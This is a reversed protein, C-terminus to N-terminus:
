KGNSRPGGSQSRRHLQPRAANVKLIRGKVDAGDMAAIAREADADDKMEIFAVGTPQATKRDTMIKIREIMGYQVFLGRIAKETTDFAFNSASINNM